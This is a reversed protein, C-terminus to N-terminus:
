LFSEGFFAGLFSINLLLRICTVVCLGYPRSIGPKSPKNIMKCDRTVKWDNSLNTSCIVMQCWQIPHDFCEALCRSDYQIETILHVSKPPRVTVKTYCCCCCCILNFEFTHNWFPKKGKLGEWQFHDGCGSDKWIALFVFVRTCACVCVCLISLMFLCVAIQM